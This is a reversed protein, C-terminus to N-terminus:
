LLFLVWLMAFPLVLQGAVKAAEGTYKTRDMIDAADELFENYLDLHEQMATEDCPEANQICWERQQNYALLERDAMKLLDCLVDASTVGGGGGLGQASAGQQCYASYVAAASAASVDYDDGAM